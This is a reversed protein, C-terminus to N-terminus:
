VGGRLKALKRDRIALLNATYQDAGAEDFTARVAAQDAEASWSDYTGPRRSRYPQGLLEARKQDVRDYFDDNAAAADLTARAMADTTRIAHATELSVLGMQYPTYQTNM